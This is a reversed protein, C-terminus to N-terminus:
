LAFTACVSVVFKGSWTRTTDPADAGAAAGARGRRGDSRRRRRRRLLRHRLRGRDGRLRGFFRLVVGPQHERRLGRPGLRHVQQGARVVAEIVDDTPMQKTYKRVSKRNLMADIVPNTLM